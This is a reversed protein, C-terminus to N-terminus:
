LGYSTAQLASIACIPPCHQQHTHALLVVSYQRPQTTPQRIVGEKRGALFNTEKSQGNDINFHATTPQKKSCSRWEFLLLHRRRPFKRSTAAALSSSDIATQPLTSSPPGSGLYGNM